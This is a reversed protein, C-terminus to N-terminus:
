EHVYAWEAVPEIAGPPYNQLPYYILSDWNMSGTSVGLELVWPNGQTSAPDTRYYTYEPASGVGTRPVEPLYAPVLDQLSSPPSGNADSYAEIARILPRARETFLKLGHMRVANGAWLAIAFMVSYVLCGVSLAAALRRTRPFVALLGAVLLAALLLLVVLFLFEAGFGLSIGWAFSSTAWWLFVAGNGLLSAVWGAM